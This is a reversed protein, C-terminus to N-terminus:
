EGKKLSLNKDEVSIIYDSFKDLYGLNRLEKFALNELSFEGGQRVAASRMDRLKEKFKDMVAFDDVKNNIFFEIIKKYHDVKKQLAPDKLDIKIKKPEKIWSDNKLSYVGQNKSTAENKDQAYIEVDYGYVKIDHTM